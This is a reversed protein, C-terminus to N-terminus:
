TECKMFLLNEISTRIIEQLEQIKNIFFAFSEKPVDVIYLLQNILHEIFSLKNLDEIEYKLYQFISGKERVDGRIREM